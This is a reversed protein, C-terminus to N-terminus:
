HDTRSGGPFHGTNTVAIFFELPEAKIAPQRQQSAKVQSRARAQHKIETSRHGRVENGSVSLM